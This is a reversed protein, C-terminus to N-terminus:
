EIREGGAYLSAASFTREQLVSISSITNNVSVNVMNLIHGTDTYAKEAAEM